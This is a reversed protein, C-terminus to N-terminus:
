LKKQDGHSKDEILGEIHMHHHQPMAVGEKVTRMMSRNQQAM